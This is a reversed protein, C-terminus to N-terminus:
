FQKRLGVTFFLEDQDYSVAEALASWSDGFRLGLGGGLYLGVDNLKEYNILDSSAENRIQVAGIKVLPFWPANRGRDMPLWEVGMGVMKYSIDGLHGVAPNDSSIGAEGGDAYFAEVSWAASWSYGFDFRYGPSQKDDIKYGGDRNRPEVVSMGVDFGAYWGKAYPEAARADLTQAGLLLCAV